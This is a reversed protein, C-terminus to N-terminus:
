ESEREGMCGLNFLRAMGEIPRPVRCCCLAVPCLPLMQGLGRVDRPWLAQRLGTGVGVSWSRQEKGSWSMWSCM